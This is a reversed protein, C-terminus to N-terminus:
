PSADYNVVPKMNEKGDFAADVDYHVLSTEGYRFIWKGSTGADGKADWKDHATIAQDQTDFDSGPLQSVVRFGILYIRDVKKKTEENGYRIDLQPVAFRLNRIDGKDDALYYVATDNNADQACAFRFLTAKREPTGRPDSEYNFGIDWKGPTMDGTTADIVPCSGAYDKLFAAKAKELTADAPPPTDGCRNPLAATLDGKAPELDGKEIHLPTFPTTQITPDALRLTYCGAFVQKKGSKDTAEIAVPLSFYTSGAAGESSAAGELVKVSATNDYGKAFADLDKAPPESFYSYARAYEHRNIANYLSRVVAEPTSRDDFYPVKALAPGASACLAAFLCALHVVRM